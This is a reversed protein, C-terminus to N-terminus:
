HWVVSPNDQGRAIALQGERTHRTIVAYDSRSGVWRARSEDQKSWLM